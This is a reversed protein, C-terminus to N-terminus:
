GEAMTWSRRSAGRSEGSGRDQREREADARIGGDEANDVGDQQPRRREV